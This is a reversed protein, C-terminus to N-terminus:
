KTRCLFILLLCFIGSLFEYGSAKTSITGTESATKETQAAKTSSISTENEALLNNKSSIKVDWYRDKL